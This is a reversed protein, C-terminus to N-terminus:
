GSGRLQRRVRVLGPHGPSSALASDIRAAAAAVDGSAALALAHVTAVEPDEPRARSALDCDAVADAARGLSLYAACRQRHILPHGAGADIAATAVRVGDESRGVHGLVALLEVLHDVSRERLVLRQALGLVPGLGRPPVFPADSPGSAIRVVPEVAREARVFVVALPDVYALRWRPDRLLANGVGSRVTLSFNGLVATRFGYREEAARWRSASGVIETYLRVMRSDIVRSDIFVRRPHLRHALYAGTRYDNFLPGQPAADAVFAAAGPAAVAPRVVVGAMRQGGDFAGRGLLLAAAAGLLSLALTVAALPAVRSRRRPAREHGAAAADALNDVTVLATVV